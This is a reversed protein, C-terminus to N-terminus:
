PFSWGSETFANIIKMLLQLINYYIDYKRNKRVIFIWKFVRFHRINSWQDFFFFIISCTVLVFIMCAQPGYAVKHKSTEMCIRRFKVHITFTAISGLWNLFSKYPTMLAYRMDIEVLVGTRCTLIKWRGRQCYGM